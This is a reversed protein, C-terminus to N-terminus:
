EAGATARGQEAGPVMGGSAILGDRMREHMVDTENGFEAALYAGAAALNRIRFGRQESLANEEIVRFIEEIWNLADSAGNLTALVDEWAGGCAADFAAKRAVADMMSDKNETSM